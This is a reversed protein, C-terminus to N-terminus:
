NTWTPITSLSYCENIRNTDSITHQLCADEYAITKNDSQNLLFADIKHFDISPPIDIALLSSGNQSTCQAGNKKAYNIIKIRDSKNEAFVRLTSHGGRYLLYSAHIQKNSEIALIIDGKSIGYIYYPINDVKYTNPKIQIGWLSEFELPPYDEMDQNLKFTIKKLSQSTM